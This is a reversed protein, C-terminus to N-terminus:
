KLFPVVELLVLLLSFTFFVFRFAITSQLVTVRAKVLLCSVTTPLLGRALWLVSVSPQQSPMLCGAGRRTEKGIKARLQSM